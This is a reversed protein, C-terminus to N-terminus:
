VIAVTDRILHQHRLPETRGNVKAGSCRDRIETHIAYAFDIPTSGKVLAKVAGKPTFVYVVDSYLDLKVSEMFQRNDTVDQHSELLQRLWTFVRKETEDIEGQEKYKWHAAISEEAVRYM